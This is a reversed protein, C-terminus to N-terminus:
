IIFPKKQIFHTNDAGISRLLPTQSSPTRNAIAVAFDQYNGKFKAGDWVKLLQETFVSNYPGDLCEQDDECSSLLLISAKIQSDPVNSQLLLSDYFKKHSLYTEEMVSPPMFKVATKPKNFKLMTGSYCSDSIVFVRVGPRFNRWLIKLEDDLLMADFLCWTQDWGTPEYDNNLNPLLGGHGSYSLVFIDGDYLKSSTGVITNTVRDRTAETTLLRITEFGSGHAIGLMSVADYEAGNLRGSTGAYHSSNLKGIGIHLSIGKSM